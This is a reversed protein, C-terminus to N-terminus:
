RLTSQQFTLLSDEINKLHGPLCYDTYLKIVSLFTVYSVNVHLDELTSQLIKQAINFM